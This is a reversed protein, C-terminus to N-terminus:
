DSLVAGKHHVRPGLKLLGKCIIAACPKTAPRPFFIAGNMAGFWLAESSM